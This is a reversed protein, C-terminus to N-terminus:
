IGLSDNYLEKRFFKQISCKFHFWEKPFCLSREVRLKFKIKKLYNEIFNEIILFIMFNFNLSVLNRYEGTFLDYLVNHARYMGLISFM